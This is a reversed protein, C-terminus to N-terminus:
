YATALRRQHYELATMDEYFAPEKEDVFQGLSGVFAERDAKVFYANSYRAPIVGEELSKMHPPITVQHVGARVKNNTWRQFTESINVVMESRSGSPIPVFSGLHERDEMELGGRNDQFLMTIVGLDTHPWIRKVTGRRLEQIDIPPYHNLRVESANSTCKSTFSGAPLKMALEFAELIYLSIERCTDYYKEM